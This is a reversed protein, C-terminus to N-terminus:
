GGAGVGVCGCVDPRALMQQHLPRVQIGPVNLGWLQLCDTPWAGPALLVQEAEFVSLADPQLLSSARVRVYSGTDCWGAHM